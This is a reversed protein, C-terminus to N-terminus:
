RHIKQVGVYAHIKTTDMHYSAVSQDYMLIPVLLTHVKNHTQTNDVMADLWAVVLSAQAGSVMGLRSDYLAMM